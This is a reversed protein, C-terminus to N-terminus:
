EEPVGDAVWQELTEKPIAAHHSIAQLTHTRDQELLTKVIGFRDHHEHIKGGVEVTYVPVEDRNPQLTM